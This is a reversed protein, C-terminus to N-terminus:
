GGRRPESPIFFPAPQQAVVLVISSPPLPPLRLGGICALIGQGRSIGVAFERTRENQIDQQKWGAVYSNQETAFTLGTVNKLVGSGSKFSPDFVSDDTITFTIDPFQKAVTAESQALLFGAGSIINFGQRALTTFNPIYDGASRSEVAQIQVHLKAKARQLGVLQLQNFGKDNFRGVDSVLGAKIAARPAASGSAVLAAAALAAIAAAAIGVPLVRRKSM